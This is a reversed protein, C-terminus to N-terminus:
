AKEIPNMMNAHALRSSFVAKHQSAAVTADTPMCVAKVCNYGAACDKGAACPGFGVAFKSEASASTLMNAEEALQKAEYDFWQGAYPARPEGVISGISDASACMPDYKTCTDGSPLEETCGDAEGPTKLWFLADIVDPLSTNVTPKAGVGANRINCWNVCSSRARPQGARGTDVVWHPHWDPIARSIERMMSQIYNYENNGGSWQEILACPDDCCAEGLRGGCWVHMKDDFAQAPCPVGLPQYNAVNSSMGRLMDTVRLTALVSAFAQANDSWGLWAGHAADIYLTVEPAKQNIQNVAYPIGTTYAASTATNACGPNQRNTALNPISDPEIIIAIPVKTHFRELVAVFPDVYENKYEALGSACDGKVTLDCKGTSPSRTCCIEGRSNNSDCDRNPLNYLIFVTLPPVPKKSADMLIGELSDTGTGNIKSKKDIWYATPTDRMIKLNDLAGGTATAISSDIEAQYAPNVYYNRSAFPNIQINSLAFLVSAAFMM